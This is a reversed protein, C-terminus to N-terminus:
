RIMDEFARDALRSVGQMGELGSRRFGSDRFGSKENGGYTRGKWSVGKGRWIRWAAGAAILM